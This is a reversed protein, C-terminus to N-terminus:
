AHIEKIQSIISRSQITYANFTYWLQCLHWFATTSHVASLVQFQNTGLSSIIAAQHKWSFSYIQILFYPRGYMAHSPRDSIILSLLLAGPHGAVLPYSAWSSVRTAAIELRQWLIFPFLKVPNRTGLRSDATQLRCCQLVAAGAVSPLVGILHIQIVKM